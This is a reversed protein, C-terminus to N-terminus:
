SWIFLIMHFFIQISNIWQRKYRLIWCLLMNNIKINIFFHLFFHLKQILFWLFQTNNKTIKSGLRKNKQLLRKTKKMLFIYQVDIINCTSWKSSIWLYFVWFRPRIYYTHSIHLYHQYFLSFTIFLCILNMNYFM